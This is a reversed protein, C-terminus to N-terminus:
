PETPHDYVVPRSIGALPYDRSVITLDSRGLRHALDRQTNTNKGPCVFVAGHPANLIISTTRGTGRNNLRQAQSLTM